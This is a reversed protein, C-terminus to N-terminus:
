PLASDSLEPSLSNTFFVLGILGSAGPCQARFARLGAYVRSLNVPQHSISSQLMFNPQSAQTEAKPVESYSHGKSKTAELFFGM